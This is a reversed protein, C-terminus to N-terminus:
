AIQFETEVAVQDSFGAIASDPLPVDGAGEHAKTSVEIPGFEEPQDLVVQGNKCLELVAVFAVAQDLRSLGEVAEDLSFRPRRRLIDLMRASMEHVSAHKGVLHRIDVDPQALLVGMAGRLLEPNLVPGDYTRQRRIVPRSAERWYRKSSGKTALWAAANRFTTYRMLRELMEAQAELAAPELIELPEESALLERTKIEMLGAILVLFESATDPDVEEIMSLRQVYGVIVEALRVDALPLERRLLVSCLLDFPGYFSDLDLQLDCPRM